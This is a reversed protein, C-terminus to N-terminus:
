SNDHFTIHWTNGCETCIYCYKLKNKGVKIIDFERREPSGCEPCIFPDQECKHDWFGGLDEQAYHGAVISQNVGLDRWVMKQGCTPCIGEREGDKHQVSIIRKTM